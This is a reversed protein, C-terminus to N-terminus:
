GHIDLMQARQPEADIMCAAPIRLGQHDCGRKRPFALAADDRRERAQEGHPPPLDDDDIGVEPPGAQVPREPEPLRLADGVSMRWDWSIFSRSAVSELRNSATSMSVGGMRATCSALTRAGKASMVIM